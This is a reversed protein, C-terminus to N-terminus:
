FCRHITKGKPNEFSRLLAELTFVSDQKFPGSGSTSDGGGDAPKAAAAAGGGGTPLRLRRKAKAKKTPKKLEKAKRKGSKENSKGRSQQKPTGPKKNPTPAPSNCASAAAASTEKVKFACSVISTDYEVLAYQVGDDEQYTTGIQPMLWLQSAEEDSPKGDYEGSQNFVKITILHKQEKPSEDGDDDGDDDDDDAPTVFNTIVGFYHSRQAFSDPNNAEKKELMIYRDLLSSRADDLPMGQMVDSVIKLEDKWKNAMTFASVRSLGDRGRRRRKPSDTAM